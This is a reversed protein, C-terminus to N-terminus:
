VKLSNMSNHEPKHVNMFNRLRLAVSGQWATSGIHHRSHKGAWRSTWDRQSQCPWPLLDVSTKAASSGTHSHVLWPLGDRVRVKQLLNVSDVLIIAYIYDVDSQSALWQKARPVAEAEMTLGPPQSETSM